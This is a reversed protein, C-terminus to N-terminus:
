APLHGLRQLPQEARLRSVAVKARKLRRLGRDAVCDADLRGECDNAEGRIEKDDEGGDRERFEDSM